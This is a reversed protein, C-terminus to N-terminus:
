SKEWLDNIVRCCLLLLLFDCTRDTAQIQSGEGGCRGHWPRDVVWWERIIISSFKSNSLYDPSSLHKAYSLYGHLAAVVCRCRPILLRNSYFKFANHYHALLAIFSTENAPSFRKTQFDHFKAPDTRRPHM